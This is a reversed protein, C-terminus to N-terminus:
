LVVIVGLQDVILEDHWEVNSGVIPRGETECERGGGFTVRNDNWFTDRPAFFLAMLMSLTLTTAARPGALKSRLERSPSFPKMM